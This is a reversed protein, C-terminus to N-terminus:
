SMILQATMDSQGAPQFIDLIFIVFLHVAVRRRSYVAIKAQAEVPLPKISVPPSRDQQQICAWPPQSQEEPEGGSAGRHAIVLPSAQVVGVAFLFLFLIFRM